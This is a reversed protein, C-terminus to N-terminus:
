DMLPRVPTTASLGHPDLRTLPATLPRPILPLSEFQARVPVPLMLVSVLQLLVLYLMEDLVPDLVVPAV